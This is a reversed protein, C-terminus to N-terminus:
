GGGVPSFFGIEDNESLVYDWERYHGNVYVLKIEAEPIGLHEILQGITSGQELNVEVSEGLDLDPLYKRLTAFVRIKVIMNEKHVAFLIRRGCVIRARPTLDGVVRTIRACTWTECTVIRAPRFTFRVFM